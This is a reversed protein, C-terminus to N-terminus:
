WPNTLRADATTSKRTPTWCASASGWTADSVRWLMTLIREDWDSAAPALLALHFARHDDYIDDMGRDPSGLSTALAFLADLKEDTMQPCSRRELDPELLLRVRCIARLEDLELDAM